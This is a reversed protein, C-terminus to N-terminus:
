PGSTSSSKSRGFGAAYEEPGPQTGALMATVIEADPHIEDDFTERDGANWRHFWSQVIEVNQESM